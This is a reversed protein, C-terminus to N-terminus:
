PAFNRSSFYFCFSSKTGHSSKHSRPLYLWLTAMVQSVLVAVALSPPLKLIALNIASSFIGVLSSISAGLARHLLHNWRRRLGQGETDRWPSAALLLCVRICIPLGCFITMATYLLLGAATELDGARFRLVSEQLLSCSTPFACFVVMLYPMPGQSVLQAEVKRALPGRVYKEFAGTDGFWEEIRSYVLRRDTVVSCEANSLEFTRFQTLVESLGKM